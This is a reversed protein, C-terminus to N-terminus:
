RFAAAIPLRITLCAGGGAPSDVLLEGRHLEVIRWAKSLGFGLGRGAERGSFFPDFLHKRLEARIGPGTDHIELEAWQPTRSPRDGARQSSTADSVRAALTITGEEDDGMAEVANQLIAGVAVRMQVVDVLVSVDNEPRARFERVSNAWHLRGALDRHFEHFLQDLWDAWRVVMPQITPPKAFLMMDAIMEHARFAQRNITTLSRRREPDMEGRLLLQARSSINALPNNIEHSAGYALEKMAALKERELSQHIERSQQALQHSLQLLRCIWGGYDAVRPGVISEPPSIADPVADLQVADRLFDCLDAPSITPCLRDVERIWGEWGVDESAWQGMLERLAAAESACVEPEGGSLPPLTLTDVQLPLRRLLWHILAIATSQRLAFRQHTQPGLLSLASV